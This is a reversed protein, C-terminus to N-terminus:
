CPKRTPTKHNQCRKQPNAMPKLPPSRTDSANPKYALSQAFDPYATAVFYALAVMCVVIALVSVCQYWKSM